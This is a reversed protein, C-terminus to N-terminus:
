WGIRLSPKTYEKIILQDHKQMPYLYENISSKLFLKEM